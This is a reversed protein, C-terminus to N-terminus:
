KIELRKFSFKITDRKSNNEVDYGFELNINAIDEPLKKLYIFGKVTSGPYVKGPFLAESYVESVNETSSYEQPYDYPYYPDDYYYHFRHRFPSHYRYYGRYYGGHYHGVGIGISIRPIIRARSNEKVIEAAINPSLLNYQNNLEDILVIDDSSFTIENKSQNEIEVYFTTLYKSVKYDSLGASPTVKIEVGEDTKFKQFPTFPAATKQKYACGSMALILILVIPFLKKSM